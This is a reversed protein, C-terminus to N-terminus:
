CLDRYEINDIHFIRAERKNEAYYSAAATKFARRAEIDRAAYYFPKIDDRLYPSVHRMDYFPFPDMKNHRARTVTMSYTQETLLQCFYALQGVEERTEAKLFLEKRIAYPLQANTYYKGNLYPALDHRYTHEPFFAYKLFYRMGFDNLDYVSSNLVFCSADPVWPGSDLYFIAEM